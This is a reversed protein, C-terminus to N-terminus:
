FDIDKRDLIGKIKRNSDVIIIVGIKYKNFIDLATSLTADENLTVPNKSSIDSTSLNLLNGYKLIGRRLDGDTVIGELYGEKDEILCFGNNMESLITSIKKEASCILLQDRLKMLTSVKNLSLGLKGAPHVAAYDRDTFGKFKSALLALIDGIVLMQTTSTTPAGYSLIEPLNPLTIKYTSSRAITSNSNRTIAISQIDREKIFTLLHNFERTEGSSSILIVINESFIMGLDGHSAEVPHLFFSAIGISSLTSSIKQGVYGSKGVGSIIVHSKCRAIVQAIKILDDNILSKLIEVGKIQKNLAEEAEFLYNKDM